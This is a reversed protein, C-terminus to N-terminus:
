TLLLSASFLRFSAAPYSRSALSTSASEVITIIQETRIFSRTRATTVEFHRVGILARFAPEFALDTINAFAKVPPYAVVEQPSAM